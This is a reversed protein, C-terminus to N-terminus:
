CQLVQVNDKSTLNIQKIRIMYEDVTESPHIFKCPKTKDNVHRCSVGFFCKVSVLEDKSHAFYCNRRPCPKGKIAYICMNTKKLKQCILEKNGLTEFADTRLQGETKVKVRGNKFARKTSKNMCLEFGPPPAIFQKEATGSCYVDQQSARSRRSCARKVLTSSDSPRSAQQTDERSLSAQQTDERTVLFRNQNQNCM